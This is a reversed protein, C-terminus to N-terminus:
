SNPNALRGLFRRATDLSISQLLYSVSYRLREGRGIYANEGQEAPGQQTPIQPTLPSLPEQGRHVARPTSTAFSLAWFAARSARRCFRSALRRRFELLEEPGRDGVDDRRRTRLGRRRAALGAPLRTLLRVIPLRKRGVFHVDTMRHKQQATPVATVFEGRALLGGPLRLPMLDCVERADDREERFPQKVFEDARLSPFPYAGLQGRADWGPAGPNPQLGTRDCKRALDPQAAALHTFGDDCGNSLLPLNRVAGDHLQFPACALRETGGAILCKLRHALGLDGVSVLRAPTELPFLDPQSSGSGTEDGDEANVLVAAPFRPLTEGASERANAAGVPLRRVGTVRKKQPLDAPRVELSVDLGEHVGDPSGHIDAALADAEAGAEESDPAVELGM